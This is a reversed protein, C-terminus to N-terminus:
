LCAQGTHDLGRPRAWPDPPGCLATRVDSASPGECAGPGGGSSPEAISPTPTQPRNHPYFILVPFLLVLFGGGGFTADPRRPAPRTFFRMEMMEAVTCSTNQRPSQPGTALIPSFRQHFIFSVHDNSKKVVRPFGFGICFKLYFLCKLFFEPEPRFWGRGRWGKGEDVIKFLLM